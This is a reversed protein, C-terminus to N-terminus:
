LPSVFLLQEGSISFSMGNLIQSDGKRAVALSGISDNESSIYLQNQARSWEKNNDYFCSCWGSTLKGDEVKIDGDSDIHTIKGKANEGICGVKPGRNELLDGIKLVFGNPLTLTEM